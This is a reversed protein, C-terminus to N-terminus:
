VLPCLKIIYMAKQATQYTTKIGSMTCKKPRNKGFFLLLGLLNCIEVLFSLVSISNLLTMVYFDRM